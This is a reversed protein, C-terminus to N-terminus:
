KTVQREVKKDCELHVAKLRKKSKITPDWSDTLIPKYRGAIEINTLISIDTTLSSINMGSYSIILWGLRVTNEVQIEKVYIDTQEKKVM